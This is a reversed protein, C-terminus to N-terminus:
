EIERFLFFLSPSPLLVEKVECWSGEGVQFQHHGLLPAQEAAASESVVIQLHSYSSAQLISCIVTKVELIPVHWCFM